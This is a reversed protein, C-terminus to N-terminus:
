SEALGLVKGAFRRDYKKLYERLKEKNIRNRFAKTTDECIERFYVMDILTKEIDSVPLLLEGQRIYDYGFFHKPSLRRIIVNSGLVKRIGPRVRRATLVIPNTEQEWLNHLSMADQLGLYAPKLCYVILSPEEHITYYGRTIRKIQGTKLLRNLLLYAYDKDGALRIVSKTDFAPTRKAYEKIKDLRKM